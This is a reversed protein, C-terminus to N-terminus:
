NTEHHVGDTYVPRFSLITRSSLEIRKYVKKIPRPSREIVKRVGMFSTAIISILSKIPRDSVYNHQWKSWTDSRAFTCQIYHKEQELSMPLLSVGIRGDHIFQVRCQFSEEVGYKDLVVYIVEDHELPVEPGVDFGVGGFSFDTLTAVYSHGSQTMVSIPYDADIRHTHRIQKEEFAVSLCVGLIILNYTVWFLNILIASVTFHSVFFLKSVAFVFGIMNLILLVIIPKSIDWDFHTKDNLGGKKTVNFSGKWPAILAVTTPIAIYWALIAEYVEGWYSHRHNGQIASNAINAHIIHPMVFLLIALAPAAIIRIDFILFALPAVMFILRPIGSLFHMMANTYCLKQRWNLGVGRLPNDLRFIQAMGRAWRIRQGIHTSLNETALGASLPERLYASRYGKRHLKLATHSDETVTEIAIGGVEMLYTKRLVACSGCFFAANWTDNGDQVLGYFLNGENPLKKFKHLNREFPDPSFFHHPTQILALKNDQLFEGMTFQLFGRTPIHDCDFIAVFEGQIRELAYNLNGAKAHENTPRRIYGVNAHEAFEKFEDRKGDDLIYINLKDEPWDIALAALVTARVVDLPENYTPILLDVVPWRSSDSPLQVPTRNLPWISQFYSLVLILWSYTEAFLLILGCTLDLPNDWNITSSYRWWMYRTSVVLSLVILLMKSLKGKSRRISLASACLISVFLFQSTLSFPVTLCVLTLIVLLALLVLDLFNHRQNTTKKSPLVVRKELLVLYGHGVQHIKGIIWSSANKLQRCHQTFIWKDMSFQQHIAFLWISQFLVKVNDSWRYNNIDVHPYFTSWSDKTLAQASFVVSFLYFVFLPSHRWSMRYIPLEVTQSFGGVLKSNVLTAIM